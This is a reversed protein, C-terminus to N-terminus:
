ARLIEVAIQAYSSNGSTRTMNNSSGITPELNYQSAMSRDVGGCIINMGDTDANNPVPSGAGAFWCDMIMSGATAPTIAIFPNTTASGSKTVPTGTASSQKVGFFSYVIAGTQGAGAEFGSETGYTIVVDGTSVTPAYLIWFELRFPNATLTAGIIKEFDEDGNFTVGTIDPNANYCGSAVILVRNTNDGVTFDSFTGSVLGTGGAGASPTATGRQIIDQNDFTIESPPPFEIFSNVLFGL